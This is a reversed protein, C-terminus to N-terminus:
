PLSPPAAAVQLSIWSRPVVDASDEPKGALWPDPAIVTKHPSPNLWAAWWAFTSNSIVAHDCQSMLRIKDYSHWPQTARVFVHPGPPHFEQEIADIDDSFIYFTIDPHKERLMATAREYYSLDLVGIERKFTANRTYDGRRFHVAASPGGRIRAAMEMVAHQPPYRFSLHLRLLNAVPAFFRESQWTGHLYTNDPQDFFGPYFGSREAYHLNGATAHRNAYQYFHLARAIRASWREVKTLKIGRVRDIEEATAFQETINFCSLAYRNHAEYEDYKRFWSVDLKLVTRHHEALALGTAYQFMQNGLGGNLRTIIM